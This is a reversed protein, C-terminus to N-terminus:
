RRYQGFKKPVTQVENTYEFATDTPDNDYRQETHSRMAFTAGRATRGPPELRVVVNFTAEGAEDVASRPYRIDKIEYVVSELIGLVQNTDPRGGLVTVIVPANLYDYSEIAAIVDDAHTGPIGSFTLQRETVGVGVSGRMTGGRLFRNPRYTLGNFTYPRGGTHYGFSKGPLDFRALLIAAIAGEDVQDQLLPDLSM